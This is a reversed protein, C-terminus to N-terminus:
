RTLNIRSKKFDDDYLKIITQNKNIGNEDKLSLWHNLIAKRQDKLVIEITINFEGWGQSVLLFNSEKDKSKIINQSFTPHLYYIVSEIYNLFNLFLM